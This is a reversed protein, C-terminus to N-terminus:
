PCRCCCSRSTLRHQPYGHAPSSVAAAAQTEELRTQERREQEQLKLRKAQIVAAPDNAARAHKRGAKAYEAALGLQSSRSANAGQGVKRQMHATALTQLSPETSVNGNPRPAM